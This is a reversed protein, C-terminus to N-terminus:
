IKFITFLLIALVIKQEIKELFYSLLIKQYCLYIEKKFKICNSKIFSTCLQVLNYIM